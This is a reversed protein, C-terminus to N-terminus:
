SFWPQPVGKLSICQYDDKEKSQKSVMVRFGMHDVLFRKMQETHYTGAYAIMKRKNEYFMRALTYIDFLPAFMVILFDSFTEFFQLKPPLLLRDKLPGLRMRMLNLLNEGRVSLAVAEDHYTAMHQQMMDRLSQATTPMTKALKTLQKDVKTLHFFYDINPQRFKTLLEMM